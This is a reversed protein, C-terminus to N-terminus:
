SLTKKTIVTKINVPIGFYDNSETEVEALKILVGNETTIFISLRWIKLMADDIWGKAKERKEENLDDTKKKM